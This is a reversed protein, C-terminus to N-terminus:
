NTTSDPCLTQHHIFGGKKNTSHLCWSDFKSIEGTFLGPKEARTKAKDSYRPRIMESGLYKKFVAKAATVKPEFAKGVAGFAKQERTAVTALLPPQCSSDNEQNQRLQSGYDTTWIHTQLATPSGDSIAHADAPTTSPMFPNEMEPTAVAAFQDPQADLFSFNNNGGMNPQHHSQGSFVDLSGSFATTTGLFAPNLPM